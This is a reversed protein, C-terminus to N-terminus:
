ISQGFSQGGKTGAQCERDRHGWRVIVTNSENSSLEFVETGDSSEEAVVNSGLTVFFMESRSRSHGFGDLLDQSRSRSRCKM